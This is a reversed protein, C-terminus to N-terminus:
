PSFQLFFENLNTNALTFESFNFKVQTDNCFFVKSNEHKKNKCCRDRYEASMNVQLIDYM